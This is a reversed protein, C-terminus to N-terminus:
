NHWDSASRRTGNRASQRPHPMTAFTAGQDAGFTGFTAGQELGNSRAYEGRNHRQRPASQTHTEDSRRRLIDGLIDAVSGYVEDKYIPLPRLYRDCHGSLVHMTHVGSVRAREFITLSSKGGCDREFGQRIHTPAETLIDILANRRQQDDLLEAFCRFPGQGRIKTSLQEQTLQPIWPPIREEEEEDSWHTCWTTSRSASANSLPPASHAGGPNASTAAKRRSAM